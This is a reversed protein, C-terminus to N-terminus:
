ANNGDSSNDGSPSVEYGGGPSGTAADRKEAHAIAHLLTKEMAKGHAEVAAKLKEGADSM